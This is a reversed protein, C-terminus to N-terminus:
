AYTRMQTPDYVAFGWMACAAIVAILALLRAGLVDLAATITAVYDPRSRKDTSLDPLPAFKPFQTVNPDPGDYLSSPDVPSPSSRDPM